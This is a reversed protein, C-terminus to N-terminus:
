RRRALCHPALVIRPGRDPSEFFHQRRLSLGNASGNTIIYKTGAEVPQGAHLTWPNPSGDLAMNNWILLRGLQPEVSLDLLPFETAGGGGTQNLYAM